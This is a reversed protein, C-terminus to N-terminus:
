RDISLGEAFIGRRNAGFNHVRYRQLHMYMYMHTGPWAEKIIDNGTRWMILLARACWSCKRHASSRAYLMGFAHM